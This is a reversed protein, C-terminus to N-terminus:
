VTTTTTTTITTTTTTTTSPLTGTKTIANEIVPSDYRIGGTTVFNVLTFELEDAPTSNDAINMANTYTWTDDNINTATRVVTDSEKVAVEFYGEWTPPADTVSDADGIGAGTGRIRTSWTLVIDQGGLYAARSAKGNLELNSVYYPTFARGTFTHAIESASVIDGGIKSNYPVLKFHRTLGTLFNASAVLIISTGVFYFDDGASWNNRWTDYQGRFLNTLQYRADIVPDPTITEFGILEGYGSGDWIFSVNGGAMLETRTITQISSVDADLDFDVTIGTTGKDLTVLGEDVDYVLVGHIAYYEIYDLLSYSSGGDISMHLEYGIETGKKRGVLPVLNIKEGSLAYPAEVLTIDDLVAITWDISVPERISQPLIASQTVYDPDEQFSIEIQDDEIDGVSREMVRCVMDVIGYLPITLKFLDGLELKFASYHFRISGNMFPFAERRVIREAIWNANYSNSFMKMEVTKSVVRGIITKM